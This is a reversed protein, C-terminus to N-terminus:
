LKARENQNGGNKKIFFFHLAVKTYIVHAWTKGKIALEMFEAELAAILAKLAPLQERIDSVKDMQGQANAGGCGGNKVEERMM